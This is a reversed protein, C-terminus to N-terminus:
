AEGDEDGSYRVSPAAMKLENGLHIVSAELRAIEAVLARVEESGLFINSGAAARQKVREILSSM